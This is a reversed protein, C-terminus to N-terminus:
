YKEYEVRGTRVFTLSGDENANSRYTTSDFGIKTVQRGGTLDPYPRAELYEVLGDLLTEADLMEKNGTGALMYAVQFPLQAEFGGYVDQHLYKGGPTTIFGMHGVGNVAQYDLVMDAPLGSYTSIRELLAKGIIQYEQGSLLNVNDSM